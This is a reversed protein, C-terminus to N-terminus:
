SGSRSTPPSLPEVRLVRAEPDLTLLVPLREVGYARVLRRIQERVEDHSGMLRLELPLDPNRRRAAAAADGLWPTDVSDALLLLRGRPFRAADAALVERARVPEPALLGLVGRGAVVALLLCTAV